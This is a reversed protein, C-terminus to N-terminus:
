EKERSPLGSLVGRLDTLRPGLKMGGEGITAARLESNVHTGRAKIVSLARGLRGETEYYRLQLLNDAIFSVGLGSLNASGLLQESEMTMLLSAGIWRLHKAIAYVLEKLRRESPVGLALTTLSDLVVRRAGRAVVQERLENLFRDTTLEVPSTYIISLLGKDELSALDWGFGKGIQRLQEPAEELTFLVAHDGRAIGELLFNMGLVTKGTGTGGTVLTASGAPLGGTLLEDLGAVGTADRGQRVPAAGEQQPGRVRPYVKLGRPGIDFFHRGSVFNAGRLKLIELDRISTLEQREAGMRIIGDAVAFEAFHPFEDRVYEGVLLTTTGWSAMQNALDYVFARASGEIRLREGLARFSDIAVFDPEHAEVRSIIEAITEDAEKRIAAVLDVFIIRDDLLEVDFFSFGQMYRIVKLAPESLTTFYLCKKGARAAHFLTQMTLITKGSGPEGAIVTVSQAPLGGGLILDLAPEGTSELKILSARSM